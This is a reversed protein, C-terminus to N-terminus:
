RGRSRSRSRANGGGASHEVTPGYPIDGEGLGLHRSKQEGSNTHIQVHAQSHTQSESQDYGQDHIAPLASDHTDESTSGQSRGRGRRPHHTYFSGPYSSSSPLSTRSSSSSPAAGGLGPPTPPSYRSSAQPHLPPSGSPTRVNSVTQASVTEFGRNGPPSTYAKSGPQPSSSTSSHTTVMLSTSDMSRTNPPPPTFAKQQKPILSGSQSQANLTTPASQTSKGSDSSQSGSTSSSTGLTVLHGRHASLRDTMTPGYLHFPSVDQPLPNNIASVRRSKPLAPTYIAQTNIKPPRVPFSASRSPSRTESLKSLRDAGIYIRKRAGTPDSSFPWLYPQYPLDGEVPSAGSRRLTLESASTVYYNRRREREEDELTIQPNHPSAEERGRHIQLNNSPPEPLVLSALQAILGGQKRTEELSLRLAESQQSLTLNQKVMAQAQGSLILKVDKMEEARKESSEKAAARHERIEAALKDTKEDTARKDEALKKTLEEKVRVDEATKAQQELLEEAKVIKKHTYRLTIYWSIGGFGLSIPIYVYVPVQPFAQFIAIMSGGVAGGVTLSRWIIKWLTSDGFKVIEDFLGRSNM